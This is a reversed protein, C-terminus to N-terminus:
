WPVRRRHMRRRKSQRDRADSGPRAKAQVKEDSEHGRLHSLLLVCPIREVGVHTWKPTNHNNFHCPHRTTKTVNNLSVKQNVCISCRSIFLRPLAASLGFCPHKNNAIPTATLHEIVEVGAKLISLPLSVSVAIVVKTPTTEFELCPVHCLM